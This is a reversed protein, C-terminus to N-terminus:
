TMFEVIDYPLDLDGVIDLCDMPIFLEGENLICPMNDCVVEFYEDSVIILKM